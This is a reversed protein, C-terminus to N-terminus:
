SCNEAKRFDGVDVFVEPTKFDDVLPSGLDLLSNVLDEAISWFSGLFVSAPFRQM